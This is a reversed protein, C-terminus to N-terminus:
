EREPEPRGLLEDREEPRPVPRGELGERRELAACTVRELEIEDRERAPEVPEAAVGEGDRRGVGFCHRVRASARGMRCGAPSYGLLVVILEVASFIRLPTSVSCSNPVSSSM